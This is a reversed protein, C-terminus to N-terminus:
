ASKVLYRAQQELLAQYKPNLSLILIKDEDHRQTSADALLEEKLTTVESLPTHSILENSITTCTLFHAEERLVEIKERNGRVLSAQINLTPLMRTIQRQNYYKYLQNFLKAACLAQTGHNDDPDQMDFLVRIDGNALLELTGGYIKTVQTVLKRYQTLLQTHEDQDEIPARGSSCDIFLLYAAEEAKLSIELQHELTYLDLQEEHGVPRRLPNNLPESPKERNDSPKTESLEIEVDNEALTVQEKPPTDSHATSEDEGSKPPPTFHPMRQTNDPKLLEVLEESNEVSKSAPEPAPEVPEAAKEIDVIALSVAAPPLEAPTDIPPAARELEVKFRHELLPKYAANLTRIDRRALTTATILVCLCTAVGLGLILLLLPNFYRNASRDNVYIALKAIELQQNYIIVEDLAGNSNGARALVKARPGTLELGNIYPAEALASLHINMSVSDSTLILPQLTIAAQQKIVKLQSQTLAQAEMRAFQMGVFASVGLCLVIALVTMGIFKLSSPQYHTTIKDATTMSYSTKIARNLITM